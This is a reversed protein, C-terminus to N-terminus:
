HQREGAGILQDDFSSGYITDNGSAGTVNWGAGGPLAVGSPAIFDNGTGLEITVSTIAATGFNWTGDLATQLQNQGGVSGLQMTDDGTAGIVCACRQHRQDAPIRLTYQGVDGYNFHGDM